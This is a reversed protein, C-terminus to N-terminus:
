VPVIAPSSISNERLTPLKAASANTALRLFSQTMNEIKLLSVPRCVASDSGGSPVGAAAAVVGAAADASAVSGIAGTGGGGSRSTAASTAGGASCAVAMGNPGTSAVRVSDSFSSMTAAILVTNSGSIGTFM